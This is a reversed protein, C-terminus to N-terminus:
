RRPVSGGLFVLAEALCVDRSPCGSRCHDAAGFGSRSRAGRRAAASGGPAPQTLEGDKAGTPRDAARPIAIGGTGDEPAPPLGPQAGHLREVRRTRGQQTLNRRATRLVCRGPDRQRHNYDDIFDQMTRRLEEPSTYVLLNLRARLTEHFREIKGNTQPHHPACYIHRIELMRLYEELARARYGSGHDSLLKTRDEIAVQRMGTCAVAPEVVDSISDATM